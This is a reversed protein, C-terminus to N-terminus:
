LRYEMGIGSPEQKRSEAAKLIEAIKTAKEEETLTTEVKAEVKTEVKDSQGLINKGLFILMTVNGKFAAELQAKRLRRKLGNRGKNIETSFRNYITGKDCGFVGAIEEVTCGIAAMAEVQEPNIDLPTRGTM